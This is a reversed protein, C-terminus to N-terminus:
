GSLDLQTGSQGTPDKAAPPSAPPVEEPKEEPSAAEAPAEWLRRGDADREYAEHDQGDAEGVGSANKAKELQQLQRQQSVGEQRALQVDAGKTQALPAGAASGLLGGLAGLSM